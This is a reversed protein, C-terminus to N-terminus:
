YSRYPVGKNDVNVVDESFFDLIVVKPDMDIAPFRLVPADRLVLFAAVM